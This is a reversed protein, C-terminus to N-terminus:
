QQLQNQPQVHNEDYQKEGVLELKEEHTALMEATRQGGPPISWAMTRM